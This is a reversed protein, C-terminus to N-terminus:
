VLLVDWRFLDPSLFLTKLNLILAIEDIAGTQMGEEDVSDEDDQAGDEADEEEDAPDAIGVFM